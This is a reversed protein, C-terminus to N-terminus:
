QCSPVAPPFCGAPDTLVITHQGLAPNNISLQAKNGNITVPTPNGDVTVTVQEGSHSTNTLTLKAQLKHGVGNSKCRAQFSVLDECPIGGGGTLAAWKTVSMDRAGTDANYIGGGNYLNFAADFLLAGPSPIESGVNFVIGRNTELGTATDLVLLIVENLYPPSSTVGVVFVHGEPDVRVDSPVDYCGPHVCPDGYANTWLLAGTAANRKVTFFDDNFNSVDGDPDSTGTILVGGAGDLYLARASHRQGIADYFQWLLQGDTGRLKITSYKNIFDIGTGTVYIDGASDIEMDVPFDDGTVGWSKEWIVAGNPPAYKVVVYDAHNSAAYGTILVLVDGNPDRLIKVPSDLSFPAVAAGDWISRCQLVGGTNFKLTMVDPGDGVTGGAVYINGAEDTAISSGFESIGPGSSYQIKNLLSGTAADYALILVNAFSNAGPTSGVVYLVGNTGKTIGSAIDARSGQSSWTKTWRTSGDPAFSVTTINTNPSAGSTGTIYSVGDPDVYIGATGASLSNGVPVRSIWEPTLQADSTGSLGTLGVVVGLAICRVRSLAFIRATTLPKM